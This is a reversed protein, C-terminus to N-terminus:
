RCVNCWGWSECTCVGGCQGCRLGTEDWLNAGCQRCRSRALSWALSTGVLIWAGVLGAWMILRGIEATMVSLEWL